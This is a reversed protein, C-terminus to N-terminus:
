KLDNMLNINKPSYYELRYKNMEHSEECLM